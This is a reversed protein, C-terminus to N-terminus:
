FRIGFTIRFTRPSQYALRSLPTGFNSGLKWNVDQAPTASLPNFRALTPTTVNTLVTQGIRTLLVPGGSNFVSDGCGCVPLQDFLNLVQAQVFLDLQRGAAKVGYQYSAGFDTRIAADTRYADRATFYYNESTSGQPTAYGPNAVYPIANVQGVAGYPAGSAMEEIASITLGELRPVGYNVWISSRHRQDASLDGVPAYWSQQRYEPYQFLDAALPGSNINEGDFNGWLRSLTYTGGVDTRSGVRYTSVLTLASYRRTLDNTNQMIALDLRNGYQDFVSGTSGDTRLSYFDRWDRYVFDARVAARSGIQRSVGAAYELVNPSELSQPIKTTLGPVQVFVPALTASNANYWGLVQQIADPTATLAAAGSNGNIAPGLYPWILTTSNGGPSSADAITSAIAAVYKAFSATVAWKGKRTPDWILGLRPSFASDRAVLQGAGDEGHNKDWRLGLNFTFAENARWSDSYFASYTRFNTGLSGVTIPNYQILTSGNNLFQPYVTTGRVISNTGLIRYNSGSQYNNAFRQDNFGDFGFVMTHSGTGKKSLFYSGKVFVDDNDRKEPDCVGCFTPSWYRTGHTRDTVLTGKLLDTFLSGVGESTWHRMSFRGEVFFNSSLVGNYNLTVLDQPNRGNFLSSLDMVNFGGSGNTQDRLTRTYAGQFRHSPNASYTLKGEYRKQDDGLTYPINTLVTQRTSDQNQLRGATFFWLRDKAVPGGITYEYTPITKDTKADGPFPTVARWNDNNLTDRFTGSFLNGGSKTIVNVVGGTFRGYEASIGATAVTTEQIADEIYLANPQGRLNENVSVGNVMFLSEFSAAGGISIAGGPGSPHVSPSLLLTANIDRTTPLTSILEQNFNTAVQATRTLVDATHAVVTVSESVAAPGLAADLLLTQTPALTVHKRVAEFGSLEFSVTYVGPPLLTFIYDGNDSTTASQVGQLNPSAASVAVGPLALGQADVVHGSITGNTTQAAVLTPAALLTAIVCWTRVTRM